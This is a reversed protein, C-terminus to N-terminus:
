GSARPDFADRLGDAVYNLALLAGSLVGGPLLITWWATRIPNIQAAGEALLTGLSAQPPQVGLGLFSLFSEYLVISPVTLALYAVVVGSLNPLIHRWLIRRHTAGLARAAEVFPQARLSLVQGRVIRAMTLWSVAGLGVFMFVLRLQGAATPSAWAALRSKLLDELAALLVVVFVISPLTYLVDVTRMLLADWRGGRYGAVAGWTVGIVLSVLAGVVGVLLSIWGGHM